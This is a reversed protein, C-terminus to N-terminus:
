LTASLIPIQTVLHRTVRPLKGQLKCRLPTANCTALFVEEHSAGHKCSTECRFIANCTASFTSAAEVKRLTVRCTAAHSVGWQLKDRLKQSFSGIVFRCLWFAASMKLYEAPAYFIIENCTAFCTAYTLKKPLFQMALQLSLNGRTIHGKTTFYFPFERLPTIFPSNASHYFLLPIGKTTFYLSIGKTTLNNEHCLWIITGMQWWNDIPQLGKFIVVMMEGLVVVVSRVNFSQQGINRFIMGLKNDWLIFNIWFM